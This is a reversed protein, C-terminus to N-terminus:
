NEITSPEDEKMRPFEIPRYRTMIDIASRQSAVAAPQAARQLAWALQQLIDMTEGAVQEQEHISPAHLAQEGEVSVLSDTCNRQDGEVRFPSIGSM